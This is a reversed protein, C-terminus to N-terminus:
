NDEKFNVLSHIYKYTHRKCYYCIKKLWEILGISHDNCMNNFVKLFDTINKEKFWLADPAKLVPMSMKYIVPASPAAM